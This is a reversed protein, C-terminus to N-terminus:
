SSVHIAPPSAGGTQIINETCLPPAPGARIGQRVPTENKTTYGVVASQSDAFNNWVCVPKVALDSATDDYYLSHVRLDAVSARPPLAASPQAVNRAWPM